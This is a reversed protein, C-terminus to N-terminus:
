AYESLVSVLKVHEPQGSCVPLSSPVGDEALSSGQLCGGQLVSLHKVSTDLFPEDM